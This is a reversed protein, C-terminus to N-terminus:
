IERENIKKPIILVDKRLKNYEISNICINFRSYSRVAYISAYVNSLLALGFFLHSIKKM